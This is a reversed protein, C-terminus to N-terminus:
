PVFVISQITTAGTTPLSDAVTALSATPSRILVPVGGGGESGGAIIFGNGTAISAMSATASCTAGASSFTGAAGTASAIINCTSGDRMSIYYGDADATLAGAWSQTTFFAQEAAAYSVLDDTSLRSEPTTSQYILLTEATGPRHAIRVPNFVTVNAGTSWNAGGNTSRAVPAANSKAALFDGPSRCLADQATATVGALIDSQTWTAGSDSSWYAAWITGNVYTAFLGTDCVDITNFAETAIPVTSWTLGGDTSKVVNDNAAPSLGWYVGNAFKVDRVSTAGTFDVRTWTGDGTSTFYHALDTFALFTGPTASAGGSGLVTILAGLLGGNATDFPSTELKICAGTLSGCL